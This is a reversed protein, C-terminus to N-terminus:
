LNVPLSRSESDPRSLKPALYMALVIPRKMDASGELSLRTAWAKSRAFVVLVTPAGDKASKAFPPLRRRHCCIQRRWVM